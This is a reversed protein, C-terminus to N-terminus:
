RAAAPSWSPERHRSSRSRSARPRRSPLATPASRSTSPAARGTCAKLVVGRGPQPPLMPDLHVRDARWRLGTLGNTFVQTFGGEGTLFNFASAGALPDQAGPKSGRAEAFQAFPDRVFPKIARMLYTHTACGPEGIQAADVAHVSDTMAPGDPDTRDAYFDLTRAAVDASMPWEVPYLLLVTDAQKILTGQYGDYQLHAFSEGALHSGSRPLRVSTPRPDEM